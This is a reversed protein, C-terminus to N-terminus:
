LGIDKVVLEGCLEPGRASSHGPKPRHFTVTLDCRFVRDQGGVVEGTDADLGSPVDIGVIRATRSAASDNLQRAVAAVDDPIPRALGIGFLADIVIDVKPLAANPDCPVLLAAGESWPQVMGVRGWREYNVRADPPLKAPDGYLLVEVMWGAKHLLRAVVFGDGGNNGPGCLVVAKKRAGASDRAASPSLDPWKEFIAAVVGQGAREMLELGTVRGSQMAAREIRRMEDSTIPTM